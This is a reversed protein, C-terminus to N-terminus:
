VYRCQSAQLDLVCRSDLPSFGLQPMHSLKFHSPTLRHTEGPVGTGEGEGCSALWSNATFHCFFWSLWFELLFGACIRARLSAHSFTALSMPLIYKVVYNLSRRYCIYMVFSPRWTIFGDIYMYTYHSHKRRCTVSPTNAYCVPIYTLM